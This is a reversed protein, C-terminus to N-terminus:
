KNDSIYLDCFIQYASLSVQSSIAFDQVHVRNSNTFTCSIKQLFPIWNEYKNLVRM